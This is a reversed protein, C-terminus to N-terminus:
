RLELMNCWPIKVAGMMTPATPFNPNQTGYVLERPSCIGPVRLLDNSNARVSNSGSRQSAQSTTPRKLDSNCWPGRPVPFGYIQQNGGRKVNRPRYFIDEYSIPQGGRKAQIHEVVIGWRERIIRDAKKKFEVMPPLDAPITSTAWIEAHVIRDLPWGLQEIAGLCGLSDKGYSCFLIHETAM